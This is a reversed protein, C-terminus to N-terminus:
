YGGPPITKGNYLDPRLARLVKLSEKQEAETEGLVSRLYEERKTPTNQSSIPNVPENYYDASDIKNTNDTPPDGAVGGYIVIGFFLIVFSIVFVVLAKITGAIIGSVSWPNGKRM